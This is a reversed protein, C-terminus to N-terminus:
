NSVDLLFPKDLAIYEITNNTQGTLDCKSIVITGDQPGLVTVGDCEYYHYGRLELIVNAYFHNNRYCLWGFVIFFFLFTVIGDWSTFDFAILPLVYALLFDSTIGSIRKASTLKYPKANNPNNVRKLNKLVIYMSIGNVIVMVIIFIIVVQFDSVENWNEIPTNTYLVITNFIIIIWLPIFSTIYMAIKFHKDM